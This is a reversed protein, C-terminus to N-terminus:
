QWEELVDVWAGRLLRVIACCHGRNQLGHSRITIAKDLYHLYMNM